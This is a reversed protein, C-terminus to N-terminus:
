RVCITVCVGPIGPKWVYYGPHTLVLHEGDEQTQWEEWVKKQIRDIEDNFVVRMEAHYGQGFESESFGREGTM